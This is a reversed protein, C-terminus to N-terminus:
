YPELPLEDRRMGHEVLRRRAIGREEATFLTGFQSGLILYEMTLDLQGAAVLRAFGTSVGSKALLYRAAGVGGRSALLHRFRSARYGIEREWLVSLALMAERFEGARLDDVSAGQIHREILVQLAAADAVSQGLGERHQTYAAELDEPAFGPLRGLSRDEVEPVPHSRAGVAQEMGTIVDGLSRAKVSRRLEIAKPTARLVPGNEGDSGVTLFGAAILRPLGFSLEDFSPILRNLWDADHVLDRLSVARGDHSGETLAALLWADSRTLSPHSSAEESTRM